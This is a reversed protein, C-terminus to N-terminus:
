PGAQFLFESSSSLSPVGRTGNSTMRSRRSVNLVYARVRAAWTASGRSGRRVWAWLSPFAHRLSRSTQGASRSSVASDTRSPGLRTVRAIEGTTLLVRERPGHPRSRAM